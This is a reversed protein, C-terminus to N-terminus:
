SFTYVYLKNCEQPTSLPISILQCGGIQGVELILSQTNYYLTSRPGTGENTKKSVHNLKACSLQNARMGLITLFLRLM